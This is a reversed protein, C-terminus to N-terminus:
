LGHTEQLGFANVHINRLRFLCCLDVIIKDRPTFCYPAEKVGGTSLHIGAGLAPLRDFDQSVHRPKVGDAQDTWALVLADGQEFWRRCASVPSTMGAPFSTCPVWNVTSRYVGSAFRQRSQQRRACGALPLRVRLYCRLASVVSPRAALLRSRRQSHDRRMTPFASRSAPFVIQLLSGPRLWRTKRRLLLPVM